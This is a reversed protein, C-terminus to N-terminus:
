LAGPARAELPGAREPKWVWRGPIISRRVTYGKAELAQRLRQYDWGTEGDARLQALLDVLKFTEPLAAATIEAHGNHGNSVDRYTRRGCNACFSDVLGGLPKDMSVLGGCRECPRM